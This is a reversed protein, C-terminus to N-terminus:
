YAMVGIFPIMLLLFGGVRLTPSKMTGGMTGFKFGVVATTFTVLNIYKFM